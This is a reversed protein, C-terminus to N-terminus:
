ADEITVVKDMQITRILSLPQDKAGVLTFRRDTEKSARFLTVLLGVGASDMFTTATLDIRVGGVAAELAETADRKINPASVSDLAAPMVLILAGDDEM